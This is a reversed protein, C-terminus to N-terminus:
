AQTKAKEETQFVQGQCTKARSGGEGERVEGDLVATERRVIGIGKGM